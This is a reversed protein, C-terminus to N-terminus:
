VTTEVAGLAKLAEKQADTIGTVGTINMGEYPRPPEFTQLCYGSGPNWLKITGDESSSAFESSGPRFAISRVSYKHGELIHLCEGNNVDWIRIKQDDGSAIHQGDLSFAVVRAWKTSGKITMIGQGTLVNWIQIPQDGGSSVLLNEVPSFAVSYIGDSHKLTRLCKGDRVDWIKVTQDGSGSALLAGDSSFAISRVWKAHGTLIHLCAGTHVDWIRVTCDECGSALLNGDSSFAVARVWKEHGTLTHLCKGTHLDWIKITLDGSGSALLRGEPHFAVSWVSDQHDSLTQLCEQTAVNWIKVTQDDYGGALWPKEPHFAVSLVWNTYGPLTHLSKGDSMNWIKISRDESGSALRAGDSSYALSWVKNKHGALTQICKWDQVNWVKITKDVSGSVLKQNDPSFVVTWVRDTHNSLIRLCQWTQTGWIRITKDESGSALLHGDPSFAVTQVLDTHGDLTKLCDGTNLSWIRITRDEGSSAIYRGEPSFAVSRIAQTHGQLINLCAGSRLDWIRITRDESGSCLLNGDPHFAVTWVRNQHGLLTRLCVKNQVDWIKITCDVSGSALRSGDPNFAVSRVWDAHGQLTTVRQGDQAQWLHIEHNTGGSALLEGDPSFSVSLISGFNQTFVSKSLDAYAFSSDNVQKGRLYAQWVVLYSFDFDQLTPELCLLLNLINGGAYGQKQSCEERLRALLQRLHMELKKPSGFHSLLREIIPELILRIQSERVFDKAVAKLLAYQNLLIAKGQKTEDSVQEVVRGSIYKTLESNNSQIMDGMQEILCGTTYEILVPQLTFGSLTSELPIRRQLLQLTSPLNDKSRPSLIDDGLKSCSIPERDIALWYMVEKELASLREFHWDLLDHLDTFVLKGKNLFVAIDGSFVEQVHKAALELALPNGDYLKILEKWDKDSGSFSDATEFEEVLRRGNIEDLGGLELSRVTKRTGELQAIEPLKERSTLLLCSQHAVEGIRRLLNGYDEYGKRYHISADGAQLVAEMNDLILLCRHEKLYYLLRSIQDNANDSVSEQQNSVFRIIDPLIDTLLPANFLSRWIVFNFQQQIGEALKATLDTKGIGGLKISLRTKGVGAIGIVAVLRCRDGLIWHQLDELEKTRGFFVSVDPAEGWDVQVAPISSQYEIKEDGCKMILAPILHEPMGAIHIANRGVKYALEVSKGAGLADYFAVAFEIATKDIIQASMGIVYPIYQAIAKAQAESYCANLVVCQLNDVFLGFFEALAETSVLHSTGDDDEFVIGAEGIGHGAFHVINPQFDLMARRVDQRRVAWQAKIVFDDRQRARQLGDEIQRVEEDLRLRATDKPNATLILIKTAM